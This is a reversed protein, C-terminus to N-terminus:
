RICSELSAWDEWDLGVDTPVVHRLKNFGLTRIAALLAPLRVNRSRKRPKPTSMLWLHTYTSMAAQMLAVLEENKWVPTDLSKQRDVAEELRRFVYEEVLDYCAQREPTPRPHLYLSGCLYMSLVLAPDAADLDFTPRHVAPLVVNTWRFFAALHSKLNDASLIQQTAAMDFEPDGASAICGSSNPGHTSKYFRDLSDVVRASCFTLTDFVLDPGTGSSPTGSGLDQFLLDGDLGEFYDDLSYQSMDWPFNGYSMPYDELVEPTHQAHNPGEPIDQPPYLEEDKEDIISEVMSGAHPNTLGLFFPVALLRDGEEM